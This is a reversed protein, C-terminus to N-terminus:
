LTTETKFTYSNKGRAKSIYMRDDAVKLLEEANSADEGYLAVGISAGIQVYQSNPLQIPKAVANVIRNALVDVEDSQMFGLIFEDGGMRALTDSKRILSRLRSAVEILVFDGAEHGYHDNVSKFGDLDLFMVIVNEGNRQALALMSSLSEMLLLRNPLGTLADHMALEQLKVKTAEHERIEDQLKESLRIANIAAKSVIWAKSLLLVQWIFATLALIIHVKDLHTLFYFSLPTMSLLSLTIYYFPMTSYSVIAITTIASLVIFLFMEEQVHLYEHFVFPTIGYFIAILIGSGSRLYVWRNIEELSQEIYKYRSEIFATLLAFFALVGYWLSIQILPAGAANLILMIFIGGLLASVGNRIGNGFFLGVREIYVREELASLESM